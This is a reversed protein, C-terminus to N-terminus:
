STVLSDLGAVVRTEYPETPLSWREQAAPSKNLARRAGAIRVRPSRCHNEPLVSLTVNCLHGLFPRGKSTFGSPPFSPDSDALHPVPVRRQVRTFYKVARYDNNCGIIRTM